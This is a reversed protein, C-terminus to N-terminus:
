AVTATQTEESTIAKKTQYLVQRADKFNFKEIILGSEKLRKIAYRITRPAIDVEETVEKFTRPKGDELLILVRRSSPPLRINNVSNVVSMTLINVSHVILDKTIHVRM